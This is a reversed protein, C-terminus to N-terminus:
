TTIIEELIHSYIDLTTSITSHGLLEQIVKPNENANILMTAFSHRLDHFRRKELGAKLLLKQYDRLFERPSLYDGNQKCFLMERDIYIDSFERKEDEQRKRHDNLASIVTDNIPIQRKSKSTKPEQLVLKNKYKAGNSADKVLALSKNISISKEEFNIDSWHLALIEGRRMGSYVELLYLAYLRDSKAEKLFQKIEDVSLTLAEYKEKKPLVVAKCINKSVLDNKYAQEMAGNIIIAIYRVTRPAMAGKGDKRGNESLDNLFKQFQLATVRDIETEGLETGRIHRDINLQYNEYTTIKLNRKKFERLWIHLWEELTMGKETITSDAEMILQKIKEKVEKQTKGYITKRKVKSGATVTIQGSWTGDKRKYVTGEGNERKSM